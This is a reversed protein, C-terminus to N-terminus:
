DSLDGVKEFVGVDFYGKSGCVRYSLFGSRFVM